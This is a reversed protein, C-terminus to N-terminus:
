QIGGLVLRVLFIAPVIVALAIRIPRRMKWGDDQAALSFRVSWVVVAYLLLMAVLGVAMRLSWGFTVRLNNGVFLVPALAVLACLRRISTRWETRSTALGAGLVTPFMVGGAASFLPLTAIVGIVRVVTLWARRDVRSRAVAVLSQSLGFLLFAGVIFLTGSWSFEPKDSIFRMWLRALVGLVLGGLGGIALTPGIQLRSASRVTFFWDSM